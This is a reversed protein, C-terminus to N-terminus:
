FGLVSESISVVFSWFSIMSKGYVRFIRAIHKYQVTFPEWIWLNQIKRHLNFEFFRKCSKKYVSCQFDYPTNELNFFLLLIEHFIKEPNIYKSYFNSLFKWLWEKIQLYCIEKASMKKLKLEHKCTVSSDLYCNRHFFDILLM